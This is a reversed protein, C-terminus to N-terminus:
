FLTGMAANFHSLLPVTSNTLTIVATTSVTAFAEERCADNMEVSLSTGGAALRRASGNMRITEATTTETASKRRGFADATEVLTIPMPTGDVTQRQRRLVRRNTLFTWVTTRATVCTSPRFADDMQANTNPPLASPGNEEDSVASRKTQATTATSSVTAIM